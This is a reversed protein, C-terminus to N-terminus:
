PQQKWLHCLAGIGESCLFIGDSKLIVLKVYMGLAAGGQIYLQLVHWPFTNRLDSLVFWERWYYVTSHHILTQMNIHIVVRKPINLLGLKLSHLNGMYTLMM